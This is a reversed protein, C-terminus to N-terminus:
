FVWGVRTNRSDKSSKQRRDNRHNEASLPSSGVAPSRLGATPKEPEVLGNRDTLDAEAPMPKSPEASAEDVCAWYYMGWFVVCGLILILLSVM